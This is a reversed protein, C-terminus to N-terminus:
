ATVLREHRTRWRVSRRQGGRGGELGRRRPGETRSGHSRTGVREDGQGLRQGHAVERAVVKGQGGAQRVLDDEGDELEDGGDAVELGADHDALGPALAPDLEEPVLGVHGAEGGEGLVEGDEAGGLLGEGVGVEDAADVEGEEVVVDVVGGEAGDGLAGAELAEGEGAAAGDGVEADAGEEGVAVADDGEVQGVAGV